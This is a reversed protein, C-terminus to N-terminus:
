NITLWPVLRLAHVARSLETLTPLLIVCMGRSHISAAAVIQTCMQVELKAAVIRPNDFFVTGTTVKM